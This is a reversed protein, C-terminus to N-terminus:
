ALSEAFVHREVEHILQAADYPKHLVGALGRDRLRRSISESDYGTMLVVKVDPQHKTLADFAEDGSMVPMTLDLLVLDVQRSHTRFVSLAEQGNTATLVRAGSKALLSRAVELVAVDDDAVLVCRGDLCGRPKPAERTAAEVAPFLVKMSTGSDPDSYMRLTGGHGKVIGLVTSLGLGRGASKTSYFPDFISDLIGPDIGRGSDSVELFVFRGPAAHGPLVTEALDSADCTMTGSSVVVVGGQDGVAEAANTVLNMVVQSVQSSDGLLRSPESALQIKLEVDPHFSVELLPCLEEVVEEIQMEESQVTAEGAYALMQRCLDAAKATSSRILDLHGLAESSKTSLAALEANGLIATLLNNFDHAIGGALVGLSELKQARALRQEIREARESIMVRHLQSSVLPAFAEIAALATHYEVLPQDHIALLHGIVKGDPSQLRVGVYSEAELEVLDRDQPFLSVVGRPYVCNEGSVVRACPTGELAYSINETLGDPTWFSITEVDAGGKLRCVAAFKMGVAMAVRQVLCDFFEPGDLYALTGILEILNASSQAEKLPDRVVCVLCNDRAPFPAVTVRATFRTGDSRRLERDFQYSGAVSAELARYRAQWPQFDPLFDRLFYSDPAAADRLCMDLLPRSAFLVREVDLAVVALAMPIAELAAVTEASLKASDRDGSVGDWLM